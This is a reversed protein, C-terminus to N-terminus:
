RWRNSTNSHGRTRTPKVRSDFQPAVASLMRHVSYSYVWPNVEPLRTNCAGANGYLVDQFQYILLDRETLDDVVVIGFQGDLVDMRANSVCDGQHSCFVDAQARHRGSHSEQKVLVHIRVRGPIQLAQPVIDNPYGLDAQGTGPVFRQKFNGSLLPPHEDGPVSVESADYEQIALM